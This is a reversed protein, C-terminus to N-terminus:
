QQLLLGCESQAIERQAKQMFCKKGRTSGWEGMSYAMSYVGAVYFPTRFKNLKATKDM